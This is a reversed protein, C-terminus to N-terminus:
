YSDGRAADESKPAPPGPQVRIHQGTAQKYKPYAYFVIGAAGGILLIAYFLNKGLSSVGSLSLLPLHGTDLNIM